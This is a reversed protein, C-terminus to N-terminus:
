MVFEFREVFFEGLLFHVLVLVSFIGGGEGLCADGRRESTVSPPPPETHTM